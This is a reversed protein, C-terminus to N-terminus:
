LWEGSAACSATESSLSVRDIKISQFDRTVAFKTAKFQIKGIGDRLLFSGVNWTSPDAQDAYTLYGIETFVSANKSKWLIELKTNLASIQYYFQLCAPQFINYEPSALTSTGAAGGFMVQM